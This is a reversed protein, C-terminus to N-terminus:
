EATAEYPIETQETAPTVAPPACAAAELPALPIEPELVGIVVESKLLVMEDPPLAMEVTDPL